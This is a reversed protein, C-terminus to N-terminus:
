SCKMHLFPKKRKKKERLIIKLVKFEFKMVLILIVKAQELEQKRKLDEAKKREAMLLKQEREKLLQERDCLKVVTRDPLDEILVGLDPLINDRLNDCLNM